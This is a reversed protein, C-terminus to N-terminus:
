ALVERHLRLVEGSTVSLQQAAATEVVLAGGEDIAIARGVVREGAAEVGVVTGLTACAARYRELPSQGAEVSRVEGDLREVLHGFLEAREVNAGLEVLSTARDRIEAPMEDHRWDVNLGIGIVADRLRDGDLATEILIGGVKRGDAAVVDNPWALRLVVGRPAAAVVALAAAASLLWADTAALRPRLGVSLALSRGAPSEWSRGHRGRGASQHDAVVVVGDDGRALLERARDNTSGITAHHEVARGVRRRPDAVSTWADSDHTATPM